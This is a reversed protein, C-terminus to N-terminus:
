DGEAMDLLEEIIERQGAIRAMELPNDDFSPVDYYRLRLIELSVKGEASRLWKQLHEDQGEENLRKQIKDM